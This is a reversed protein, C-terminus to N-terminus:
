HIIHQYCLSHNTSQFIHMHKPTHISAHRIMKPQLLLPLLSLTPFYLPPIYSLLLSPPLTSFFWLFFLLVLVLQFLCIIPHFLSFSSLQLLFPTLSLFDQAAHLRHTHFSTQQLNYSSPCHTTSHLPSLSPPFSFSPRQPIAATYCHPSTHFIYLSFHPLWAFPPPLLSFTFNQIPVPNQYTTHPSYFSTKSPPSSPSSLHISFPLSLLLHLHVTTLLFHPLSFIPQINQPTASHEPLYLPLYLPLLPHEPALLPSSFSLSIVISSTFLANFSVFPPLAGPISPTLTSINFSPPTVTNSHNTLNNLIHKINDITGTSQTIAHM